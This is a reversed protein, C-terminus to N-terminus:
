LPSIPSSPSSNKEDQTNIPTTTFDTWQERLHTMQAKFAVFRYGLEQYRTRLKQSNARLEISQAVVKNVLNIKVPDTKINYREIKTFEEPKVLTGYIFTLYSKM